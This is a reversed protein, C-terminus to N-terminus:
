DAIGDRALRAGPDPDRGTFDPFLTANGDLDYTPSFTLPSTESYQNLENTVNAFQTRTEMAVDVSPLWLIELNSSNKLPEIKSCMRKMTLFM